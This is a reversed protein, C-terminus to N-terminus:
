DCGGKNFRDFIIKTKIYRECDFGWEKMIVILVFCMIDYEFGSKYCM